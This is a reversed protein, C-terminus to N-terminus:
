PMRAEFFIVAMTISVESSHSVSFVYRLRVGCFVCGECRYGVVVLLKFDAEFDLKFVKVFLINGLRLRGTVSRYM